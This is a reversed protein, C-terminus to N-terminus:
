LRHTDRRLFLMEGAKTNIDYLYIKRLHIGSLRAQPSIVPQKEVPVIFLPNPNNGKARKLNKGTLPVYSGIRLNGGIASYVSATQLEGSRWRMSIEFGGRAKLGSVSGKNWLSPLAPLLQIKGDYSQVLMEAIGSTFGFNGDIQFPPHADFLNPYMRGHPYLSVVSDAPLINLLCKVLKYAHDGDLLRAWLNIKWGISWGTAEDGRQILTNRIAEFLQPTRVPSIQNSPFLGYAHSVHRHNDKPDDVDELWEQLQNYKGIQMPPLQDIQNQLSDIYKQPGGLTKTAQLADNLVDFAIQNDMTCGAIVSPKGNPGHEPSISPVTVMWGYKPHRVMASLYFDAAGKLQPYVDRLYNKDGNFLYRQWLHTSLWGAGNPWIGWTAGDVMGATRWIDTNHHAMYGRANYMKRAAERGTVSLDKVLQILPLETEPLNCIQAPWYNMETNINITYKGDWPARLEKNWLGQLNAPEGGPQSSSILLYRGYQFVLAVLAPDNTQQFLRLREDTPLNAYRSTGINLKVRNFEKRYFTEHNNLASIYSKKMARQLKEMSCSIENGSVDHYNVFNTGTTVYLIVETANSVSISDDHCNIKGDKVKLATRTNARIVGKVGEHDTGYGEMVLQEGEVRVSHKLPSQYSITFNLQQKKDADLRIIIAEDTFSSFVERKFTVGGVKFSTSAVAHNLDLERHYDSVRGKLLYDFCLSGVTEYPMGNQGTMFNRNIMDQAIATQGQFILRRIESLTDPNVPRVNSHPGGGWVTEENIQLEDHSIGGFVMGGLHGNGIPLAEQWIRAPQVYWLKLDATVSVISYLILISIILLKRM